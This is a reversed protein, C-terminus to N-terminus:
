RLLGRQVVRDVADLRLGGALPSVCWASPPAPGRARGEDNRGCYGTAAILSELVPRQAAPRAIAPRASTPAPAHSAREPPPEVVAGAPPASRPTRTCDTSPPASTSETVGPEGAALAPRRAWRLAGFRRPSM